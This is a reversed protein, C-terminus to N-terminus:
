AAGLTAGWHPQLPLHPLPQHRRTLAVARGPWRRLAEAHADVAQNFMNLAFDLSREAQMWGAVAAELAPEAAKPLSMVSVSVHRVGELALGLSRYADPQHPRARVLDLAAQLQREAAQFREAMDVGGSQERWRALLPEALAPRQSTLLAVQVITQVAQQRLALFRQHVGVAWFMLLALALLWFWTM